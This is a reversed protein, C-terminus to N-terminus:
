EGTMHATLTEVERVALTVLEEASLADTDILIHANQRAHKLRELQTEYETRSWNLNKRKITTEYGAELYILIDPNTIRFWMDPVYSHEQAIHRCRYGQQTLSKILTSKGSACVGVVGILLEAHSPNM